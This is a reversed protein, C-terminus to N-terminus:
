RYGSMWATARELANGAWSLDWNVLQLSALEAPTLAAHERGDRQAAWVHACLDTLCAHTLATAGQPTPGLERGGWLKVLEALEASYDWHGDPHQVACLRKIVDIRNSRDYPYRQSLATTISRPSATATPVANKLDLPPAPTQQLYQQQYQQQYQHAQQQQSYQSQPQPQQYQYQPNGPPAQYVPTSIFSGPQHAQQHTHRVVGLIFIALLALDIFSLETTSPRPLYQVICRGDQLPRASICLLPWKVHRSRPSATRAVWCNALHFEHFLFLRLNSCLTM